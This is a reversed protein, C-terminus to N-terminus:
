GLKPSPGESRRYRRVRPSRESHVQATGQSRAISAQEIHLSDSEVPPELLQELSHRSIRITRGIRIVGPIENARIAAYMSSRGLRLVEAAEEVTLTLPMDALSTM